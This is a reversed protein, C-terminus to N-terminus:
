TRLAVHSPCLWTSRIDPGVRGRQPAAVLLDVYNSPAESPSSCASAVDDYDFATRPQALSSQHPFAGCQGPCTRGLRTPFSQARGTWRRVGREIRVRKEITVRREGLPLRHAIQVSHRLEQEPQQLLDLRNDLLHRQPSRQQQAKIVEVPRSCRAGHRHSLERRPQRRQRHNPYHRESRVLTKGSIWCAFSAIISAPASCM